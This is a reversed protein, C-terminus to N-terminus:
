TPHPSPSNGAMNPSTPIPLDTPTLTKPEGEMNALFLIQEQNDPSLRTGYFIVTGDTPYIYDFHEGDRLNEILWPRQRRFERVSSTLPPEYRSHQKNAHHSVNCYDHVDEM